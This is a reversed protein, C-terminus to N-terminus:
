PRRSLAVPLSAGGEREIRFLANNGEQAVLLLQPNRPWVQPPIDVLWLYDFAGFPLTRLSSQLAPPFGGVCGRPETSAHSSAQDTFRGANPYVVALGQSGPGIYLNNVFADHRVVALSPLYELRSKTWNHIRGPCPQGVFAAIAAKREVGSILQMHERYSRDYIQFSAVGAGIRFICFAVSAVMLTRRLSDSMAETEGVSLVLVILGVALLRSAAFMSGFVMEPGVAGIILLLAGALLLMPSYRASRPRLVPLAICAVVFALSLLDFVIWRDRLTGAFWQLKTALRPWEGISTHQGSRWAAMLLLPPALCLCNLSARTGRVLLHRERSQAFECTWCLLVLLAWGAVHATWIVLSVPLFVLARRHSSSLSRAMRLWLAFALFALAVSLWYNVFGM